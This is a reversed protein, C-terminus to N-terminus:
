IHILSLNKATRSIKESEEKAKANVRFCNDAFSLLNLQSIDQVRGLIVYAQGSTFVSKLDAALVNPKKVTQGQCKHATLAWALMLPFQYITAKATHEKSLRGLSFDFKFINIPVSLPYKKKQIPSLAEITKEGVTEDDFKVFISTRDRICMESGM